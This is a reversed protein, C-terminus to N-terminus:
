CKLWHWITKKIAENIKIRKGDFDLVSTGTYLSKGSTTLTYEDKYIANWIRLTGNSIELLIPKNSSIKQDEYFYLNLDNSSRIEIKGIHGELNFPYGDTKPPKITQINKLPTDVIESPQHYHYANTDTTVYPQDSEIFIQKEVLAVQNTVPTAIPIFEQDNNDEQKSM